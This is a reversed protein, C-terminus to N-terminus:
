PNSPNKWFTTFVHRNLIALIVATGAVATGLLHIMSGAGLNKLLAGNLNVVLAGLFCITTWLNRLAFLRGRTENTVDHQLRSEIPIMIAAGLFGLGMSGLLAPGYSHIHSFGCMGLGLIFLAIYPLGNYHTWNRSKGCFIVGLGLGIGVFALLLGLALVKHDFVPPKPAFPSLLSTLFAVISDVLSLDVTKAAYELVTILFMGSTFSFAGSLVVLRQVEPLSRMLHWGATLEKWSRGLQDESSSGEPLLPADIRFILFASFLFGFANLIFSSRAGFLSVLLGAFLSGVLSAIVGILAILANATVLREPPVLQPLAAQRAPIFLGNMGGMIFILFFVAPINERAFWFYLFSLAAFVRVLDAFIMITKRSFRDVAWGMWPAFILCPLMGCFVVRASEKGLELGQNIGLVVSLLAFQYFRDGISSIIQGFWLRSFNRNRLVERFSHSPM